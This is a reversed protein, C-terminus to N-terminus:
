KRSGNPGGPYTGFGSAATAIALLTQKTRRVDQREATPGGVGVSRGTAVPCAARRSCRRTLWRVAISVNM